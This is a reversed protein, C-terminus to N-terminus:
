SPLVRSLKTRQSVEIPTFYYGLFLTIIVSLVILITVDKLYEDECQLFYIKIETRKIM